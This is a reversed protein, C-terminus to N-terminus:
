NSNGCLSTNCLRYNGCMLINDLTGHELNILIIQRDHQSFQRRANWQERRTKKLPPGGRQLIVLKRRGSMLLRIVVPPFGVLM